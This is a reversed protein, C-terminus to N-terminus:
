FDFRVSGFVTHGTLHESAQLNYTLALTFKNLIMKIGVKGDFTVPDIINETRTVSAAIVGPIHTISTADLDGRSFIAALDLSPVIRIQNPM